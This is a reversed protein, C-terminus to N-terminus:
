DISGPKASDTRAVAPMRNREGFTSFLNCFINFGRHNTSAIAIGTLAVIGHKGTIRSKDLSNENAVIGDFIKTAGAIAGIVTSPNRLAIKVGIIELTPAM